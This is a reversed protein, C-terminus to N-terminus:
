NSKGNSARKSYKLKKWREFRRIIGVLRNIIYPFLEWGEGEGGGGGM